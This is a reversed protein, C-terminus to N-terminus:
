NGESRRNYFYNNSYTMTTIAGLFKKRKPYWFSYDNGTFYDTYNDNIFIGAKNYLRVAKNQIKKRVKILQSTTLITSNEQNSFQQGTSGNQSHQYELYQEYIFYRLMRKLGEYIITEGSPNEYTVGYLLDIYIQDVPEGSTTNGIFNNYLKDNLLDRLIDTEIQNGIAEFNALVNPDNNLDLNIEGIFDNIDTFTM